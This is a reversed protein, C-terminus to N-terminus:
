LQFPRCFEHFFPGPLEGQHTLDASSHPSNPTSRALPLIYELHFFRYLPVEGFFLRPTTMSPNLPRYVTSSSDSSDCRHIILIVDYLIALSQLILENISFKAFLQNVSDEFSQPATRQDDRESIQTIGSRTSTFSDLERLFLSSVLELCGMTMMSHLAESRPQFQQTLKLNAVASEFLDFFYNGCSNKSIMWLDNYQSISCHKTQIFRVLQSKSADPNFDLPLSESADRIDIKRLEEFPLKLIDPIVKWNIKLAIILLRERESKEEFKRMYHHNNPSFYASSSNLKLNQSIEQQYAPSDHRATVESDVSLSQLDNDQKQHHERQYFDELLAKAHSGIIHHNVKYYEIFRRATV